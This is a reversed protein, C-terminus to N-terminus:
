RLATGSVGAKFADWNDTIHWFVIVAMLSLMLKLYNIAPPAPPAAPPPTPRPDPNM